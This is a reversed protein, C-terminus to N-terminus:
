VGPYPHFLGPAGSIMSFTYRLSTNAGSVRSNVGVTNEKGGWSLIQPFLSPAVLPASTHGAVLTGFAAIRMYYSGTADIRVIEASTYESQTGSVELFIGTLIRVDTKQPLQSDQTPVVGNIIVSNWDSLDEWQFTQLVSVGPTLVLTYQTSKSQSYQLLRSLEQTPVVEQQIGKLGETGPLSFIRSFDGYARGPIKLM